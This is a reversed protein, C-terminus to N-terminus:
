LPLDWLELDEIVELFRKMASSLRLVSNRERFFDLLMLIEEQAGNIKGCVGLLGWSRRFIKGLGGLMLTMCGQLFRISAMRWMRLGVLFWFIEM